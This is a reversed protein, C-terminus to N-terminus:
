RPVARHWIERRHVLRTAAILKGDPSVRPQFVNGADRTLQRPEGGAVPISFLQMLDGVRAAYILSKGDPTWCVGGYTLMAYETVMRAGSGDAAVIWLAHRGDGHEEELAISDSVPSWAAWLAGHIQPPLVLPAHGLPRGTATDITV